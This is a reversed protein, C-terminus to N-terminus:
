GDAAGKHDAGADHPDAGSAPPSDHGPGSRGAKVVCMVTALRRIVPRGRWGLTDPDREDPYRLTPRDPPDAPEMAAIM